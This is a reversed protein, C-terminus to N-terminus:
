QIMPRRIDEHTSLLCRGAAIRESPDSGCGARRARSQGQPRRRQSLSRRSAGPNSGAAVGAKQLTVALELQDSGEEGAHAATLAREQDDFALGTDPLGLKEAGGALKAVGLPQANQAGTARLQVAREREPHDALQEVAHDGLVGLQQGAPRLGGRAHEGGGAVVVRASSPM